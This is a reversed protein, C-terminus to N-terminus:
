RATFFNINKLSKPLLLFKFILKASDMATLNTINNELKEIYKLFYDM